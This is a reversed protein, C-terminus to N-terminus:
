PILDEHDSLWTLPYPGTDGQHPFNGHPWRALYLLTKSGALYLTLAGCRGPQALPM